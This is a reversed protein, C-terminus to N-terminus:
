PNNERAVASEQGTSWVAEGPGQALVTIVPGTSSLLSNMGLSRDGSITLRVRLPHGAMASGLALAQLRASIAGSQQRVTILDGARIVRAAAVAQVPESATHSATVVSATSASPFTSGVMVLHYPWGPHAPDAIWQWHMGLCPDVTERLVEGRLGPPAQASAVIRPPQATCPLSLFAVGCVFLLTALRHRM